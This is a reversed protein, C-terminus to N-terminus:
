AGRVMVRRINDQRHEVIMYLYLWNMEKAKEVCYNIVPYSRIDENRFAEPLDVDSIKACVTENKIGISAPMSVPIMGHLLSPHIDVAMLCSPDEKPENKLLDVTEFLRTGKLKKFVDILNNKYTEAAREILSIEEPSLSVQIDLM